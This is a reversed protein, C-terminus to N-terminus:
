GLEQCSRHGRSLPAWAPAPNSCSRSGMLPGAPAAQEQSCLWEPLTHLAAAGPFSGSHLLEHLVAEQPLSVPAPSPHSPDWGQPPLPLLSLTHHASWLGWKGDGEVVSISSVLVSTSGPFSPPTPSLHKLM